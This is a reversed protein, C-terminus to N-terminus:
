WCCFEFPAHILSGSVRIEHRHRSAVTGGHGRRQVTQGIIVGVPLGDFGGMSLHRAGQPYHRVGGVGGDAM